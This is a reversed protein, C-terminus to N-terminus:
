QAVDFDASRIPVCRGACLGVSQAHAITCVCHQMGRGVLEISSSVNLSRDAIRADRHTSPQLHRTQRRDTQATPTSEWFAWARASSVAASRDARGGPCNEVSAFHSVADSAAAPRQPVAATALGQISGRRLKHTTPVLLRRPAREESVAWGGKSCDILRGVGFVCAPDVRGQM